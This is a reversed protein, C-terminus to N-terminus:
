AMMLVLNGLYHLAESCLFERVSSRIVARGDGRRSYPTMGSGKLQLEWHEGQSNKFTGLMVARGDGLQGAWSGFQHGGYRHSLPKSGNLILNGSVLDLFHKDHVINPDMDLLNTIVDQSVSALRTDTSFPVPKVRSFVVGYVRRVYNDTVKDIPFIKTLVNEAFEWTDISKHKFTSAQCSSINHFYHENYVFRISNAEIFESHCCLVVLIDFFVFIFLICVHGLM